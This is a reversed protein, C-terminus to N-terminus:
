LGAFDVIAVAIEGLKTDNFEATIGL